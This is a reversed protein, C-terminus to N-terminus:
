GGSLLRCVPTIRVKVDLIGPDADGFGAKRMNKVAEGLAAAVCGPQIASCTKAKGNAFLEDM